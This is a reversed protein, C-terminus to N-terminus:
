PSIGFRSRLRLENIQRATWDEICRQVQHKEPGNLIEHYLGHYRVAEVRGPPTRAAWRATAEPDVLADAGAYLVLTPVQLKPAREHADALAELAARYWGASV